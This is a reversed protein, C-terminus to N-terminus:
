DGGASGYCNSMGANQWPQDGNQPSSWVKAFTKKDYGQYYTDVWELYQKTGVAGNPDVNAGPSAVQSAAIGDFGTVTQARVFPHTLSVAFFVALGFKLM